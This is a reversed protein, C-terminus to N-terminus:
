GRKSENFLIDKEEKTLGEYGKKSIKELIADIREKRIKKNANYEDDTMDKVSSSDYVKMKPKRKFSFNGLKLKFIFRDLRNMFNKSSSANIVSLSGFIAGGLHAFHAVHDDSGIGMLDSLLYVAAIGILPVSFVGFLKVKLAPQHVAAAFFVAMVSASAGVLIQPGDQSLLPFTYYALVHVAYAFVGGLLYTSLLRREGFFQVFIRASFFFVIMNFLFHLFDFHTFLNTIITWPRYIILSPDAIAGFYGLVEGTFKDNLYLKSILQIILFFLFIVGNIAILKGIMGSQRIIRKLYAGINEREM